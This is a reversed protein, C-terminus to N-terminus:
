LACTTSRWSIAQQGALGTPEVELYVHYRELDAALVNGRELHLGQQTGVRRDM